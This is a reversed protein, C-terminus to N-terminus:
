PNVELTIYRTMKKDWKLMNFKDHKRLILGACVAIVSPDGVAVFFDDEGFDALAEKIKPTIRALFLPDDEKELIVTLSGYAAAKTFDFAPVKHGAAPDYREVLQPIFVRPLDM